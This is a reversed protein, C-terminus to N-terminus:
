YEALDDAGIALIMVTTPDAPATGDALRSITRITNWYARGGITETSVASVQVRNSVNTTFVVPERLFGQKLKVTADGTGNDTVTGQFDASTTAGAPTTYAYDTNIAPVGATYTLKTFAIRTKRQSSCIGYVADRAYNDKSDSGLVAIYFDVDRVTTTTDGTIVQCGSATKAVIKAERCNAADITDVVFVPTKAFAKKFTVNYIGTSARTITFDSKNFQVAASGAASGNFKTWVFRTRTNSTVIDQPVSAAKNLSATKPGVVIFEATGDENGAGDNRVMALTVATKSISTVSLYGGTTNLTSGNPGVLIPVEAFPRKFEFTIEGANPRSLTGAKISDAGNSASISPTATTTITFGLVQVQQRTSTINRLM